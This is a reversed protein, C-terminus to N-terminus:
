MFQSLKAALLFNLIVSDDNDFGGGEYCGPKLEGM